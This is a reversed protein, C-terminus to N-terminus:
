GCWLVYWLCFGWLGVCMDSNLFSGCGQPYCVALAPFTTFLLRLCAFVTFFFDVLTKHQGVQVDFNRKSCKDVIDMMCMLFVSYQGVSGKLGRRSTVCLSKPGKYMQLNVSMRPWYSCTKCIFSNYLNPSNQALSRGLRRIPIARSESSTSVNTNSQSPTMQYVSRSTNNGATKTICVHNISTPFRIFEYFPDRICQVFKSFVALLDKEDCIIWGFWTSPVQLFEVGQSQVDGFITPMTANWNM